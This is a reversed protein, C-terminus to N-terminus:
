TYKPTGPHLHFTLGCSVSTRSVVIPFVSCGQSAALLRDHAGVRSLCLRGTFVSCLAWTHRAGYPQLSPPLTSSSSTPSSVSRPRLRRRHYTHSNSACVPYDQSSLSRWDHRTCRYHTRAYMSVNAAPCRACVQVDRNVFDTREPAQVGTPHRRSM